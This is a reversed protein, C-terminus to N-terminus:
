TEGANRVSDTALVGLVIGISLERALTWLHFWWTRGHYDAFLPGWRTLFKDRLISRRTKEDLAIQKYEHNQMHM